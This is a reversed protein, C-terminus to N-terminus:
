RRQPTMMSRGFYRLTKKPMQTTYMMIDPLYDAANLVRYLNLSLQKEGTILSCKEIIVDYLLPTRIFENGNFGFEKRSYPSSQFFLIYLVYGFQASCQKEKEWARQEGAAQHGEGVSDQGAAARVGLLGEDEADEDKLYGRQGKGQLM